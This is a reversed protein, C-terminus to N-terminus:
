AKWRKSREQYERFIDDAYEEAMGDSMSDVLQDTIAQHLEKNTYGEKIYDKLCVKIKVTFTYKRRRM